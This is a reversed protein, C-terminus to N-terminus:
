VHVSVVVTTFHSNLLQAQGPTSCMDPAGPQVAVETHDAGLVIVLVAELHEVLAGVDMM